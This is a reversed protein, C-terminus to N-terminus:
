PKRPVPSSFVVGEDTQVGVMPTENPGAAARAREIGANADTVTLPLWGDARFRRLFIAIWAQRDDPDLEALSIAKGDLRVLIEAGSTEYYRLADAENRVWATAAPYHVARWNTM